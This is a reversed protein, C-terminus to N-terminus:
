YRLNAYQRDIQRLVAQLNAADPGVADNDDAPVM